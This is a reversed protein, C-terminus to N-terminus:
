TSYSLFFGNHCSTQVKALNVIVSSDSSGGGSTVILPWTATCWGKDGALGIGGVTYGLQIDWNATVHYQTSNVWGRACPAITAGSNGGAGRPKAKVVDGFFNLFGYESQNQTATSSTVTGCSDVTINSTVGLHNDGAGTANHENISYQITHTIPPPSCSTLMFASALGAIGLVVGSIRRKSMLRM